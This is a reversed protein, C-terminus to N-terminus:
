ERCDCDAPCDELGFSMREQVDAWADPDRTRTDHGLHVVFSHVGETWRRGDPALVQYRVGYVGDPEKEVAAGMAAALRRTGALTAHTTM